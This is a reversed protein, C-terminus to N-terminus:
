ILNMSCNALDESIWFVCISVWEDFDSVFSLQSKKNATMVSAGAQLLFFFSTFISGSYLLYISAYVEPTTEFFLVM